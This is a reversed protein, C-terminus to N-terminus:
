LFLKRYKFNQKSFSTSTFLIGMQWMEISLTFCEDEIIKRWAKNMDKSWHIDDLILISNESMLGKVFETYKVVADYTHNADIVVMDVKESFYDKQKVVDDINANIAVINEANMKKFANQAYLYINESGEITYIKAVSDARSMAMTSVGFSSGFEIIKEVGLYNIINYFFRLEAKSKLSNQAHKSINTKYIKQKQGGSGLDEVEILSKDSLVEKRYNLVDDLHTPKKKNSIVDKIFNYLFPSHASHVTKSAFIWKVFLGIREIKRKM